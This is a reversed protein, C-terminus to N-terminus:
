IHILSLDPELGYKYIVFDGDDRHAQIVHNEENFRIKYKRILDEPKDKSDYFFFPNGVDSNIVTDGTNGDESIDPAFPLTIEKPYDRKYHRNALEKDLRAPIQEAIVYTGYPLMISHNYYDDKGNKTNCQLTTPYGDAGGGADNDWCIALKHDMGDFIDLYAQAEGRARELAM